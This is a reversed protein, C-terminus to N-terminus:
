GGESSSRRRQAARAHAWLCVLAAPTMGPIRAAQGTSTPRVAMLREAAENTLGALAFYDLDPELPLDQTGEGRIRQIERRLREGYGSYCLEARARELIWEPAVPDTGRRLAASLREVQAGRALSRQLRAESVLGTRQAIRSLRQDANDERLMLRFEARSTFMRYPEDCGQTVLDDVLVGMYGQERGM